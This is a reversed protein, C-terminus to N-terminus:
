IPCLFQLQQLTKNTDGQSMLQMNQVHVHQEIKKNNTVSSGAAGFIGATANVKMDASLGKLADSVVNKSGKIGKALGTMFDPMWTEYDALPGEDPTSFHLFSKITNAINTAASTVGGIMNKIGDILGQVFDSGWKAAQSPLSTFINGLGNIVNSVTQGMNKAGSSIVKFSNDVFDHFPKYHNYLLIFAATLGAIVLIVLGFPNADMVFNLAAQAAEALKTAKTWTEQVATVGNIIATVTKFAVFAGALGIIVVKAAEGHDKIFNFGGVLEPLVMQGFTKGIDFLNQTFDKIDKQHDKINQALNTFGTQLPPLVQAVIPILANGFTYGLQKVQMSLAEMEMKVKHAQEPDIGIGKVKSAQTAVDNYNGLIGVLDKGRSKLVQSTYAEENGSAAAKQYGDALAKLQDNYSLLKGKSDTLTVGYEALAKTTANGKKGAGEVGKDLRLMTGTFADANTDALTLEKNLLGADTASMHLKESLQYAADGANIAGEAVSFLGAGGAAAAALGIVANKLGLVHSQGKESTEKVKSTLGTWSFSQKDVETTTKKLEGEMGNLTSKAKYLKEELTQTAKADAGKATVSKDFALQLKEVAQKQLDIQRNLLASKEKLSDSTSGFATVRTGAEKFQAQVVKLESNIKSIGEQFGTGDLGFKANVGLEKTM